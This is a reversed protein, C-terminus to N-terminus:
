SYEYRRTIYIPFHCETCCSQRSRTKKKNNGAGFRSLFQLRMRPQSQVLRQLLRPHRRIEHPDQRFPKLCFQTLIRSSFRPWLCIGAKGAVTRVVLLQRNSGQRSAADPLGATLPGFGTLGIVKRGAKMLKARNCIVPCTYDILKGIAIIRHTAKDQM